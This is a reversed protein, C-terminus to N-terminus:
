KKTKKKKNDVPKTENHQFVYTFLNHNMKAVCNKLAM